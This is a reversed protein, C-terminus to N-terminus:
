SACSEHWTPSLAASPAWLSTQTPWCLCTWWQRRSPTCAKWRMPRWTTRKSWWRAACVMTICYKQTRRFAQITCSPVVLCFLAMCSLMCQSQWPSCANQGPHVEAAAPVQGLVGGSCSGNHALSPSLPLPPAAPSGVVLVHLWAAKPLATPESSTDNYSLLGSAAYLLISANYGLERMHGVMVPLLEQPNLGMDPEFRLHMANFRGGIREAVRDALEVVRHAYFVGRSATAQLGGTSNSFFGRFLSETRLIFCGAAADKARAAELQQRAAAAANTITSFEPVNIPLVTCDHLEGAPRASTLLPRPYKTGESTMTFKTAEQLDINHRKRWHAQMKRVDLLTGLPQPSWLAEDALHELTTNFTARCVAPPLIAGDVGLLLALALGNVHSYLQNTLGYRLSWTLYVRSRGTSGTSTAM